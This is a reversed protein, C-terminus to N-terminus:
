NIKCAKIAKQWGNLLADRKTDNIHPLFECVDSNKQHLENRNEFFGVALGALFAAGLSTAEKQEPRLVKLASIDAQFQMLFNNSCAGGDVKLTNIDTNLDRKIATLVDNTQYAISELAARIIHNKGTGGTLGVITGRARMDWYPAGLGSFAPVFYVGDTDAIKKAYEESEKAHKIMKMEDRLWKIVAGGVFVSGELAYETEKDKETAAITTILGSQSFIPNKGTNALLFCGTGYTTKVDGASFCGQGFLAAQQDGAIGGIPIKSGMVDAYGYIESSSRIQPLMNQPIDMVSLLNEDWKQTKINYLMTRSANTRDTVHVKGSTLKWVLWSDITGFCLDGRKAKEKAGDVNDLIWRIKTGSFYADIKLGTNAAIYDSYGDSILRECIETTRRCQWVIANYIPKGSHKDWIVTTERQNTIGISAIEDPNIGTKAICDVLASYQSAFIEMADQEVYGPKPFTKSIEYQSMGVINLKKDFILCRASTTGEDLAVVYKKM